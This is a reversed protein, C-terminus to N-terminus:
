NRGRKGWGLSLDLVVHAELSMPLCGSYEVMGGLGICAVVPPHDSVEVSGHSEHFKVVGSSGFSGLFYKGNFGPQKFFIGTPIYDIWIFGM